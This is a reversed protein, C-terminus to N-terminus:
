PLHLAGARWLSLVIVCVIAAIGCVLKAIDMLESHKM